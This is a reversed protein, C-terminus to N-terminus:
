LRSFRREGRRVLTYGRCPHAYGAGYPAPQHDLRRVARGIRPYQRRWHSRASFKALFQAAEEETFGLDAARLECLGSGNRVRWPLPPDHRTTIVLHMARPPYTVLDVLLQHILPEHIEHYDDLVLIFDDGLENLQNILLVALDAFTRAHPSNIGELVGAGFGASITALAATLGTLFMAPDNDSEDLSLWACPLDAQALWSGVLTTKGYGAPAVVLSLAALRNLRALLRPRAVM